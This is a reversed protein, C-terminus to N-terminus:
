KGARSRWRRVAAGCATTGAALLLVSSTTTEAFGVIAALALLVFFSLAGLSISITIILRQARRTHEDTHLITFLLAVIPRDHPTRM